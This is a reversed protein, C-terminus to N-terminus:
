TSVLCCGLVMHPVEKETKFQHHFHTTETGDPSNETRSQAVAPSQSCTQGIWASPGASGTQFAGTKFSKKTSDMSTHHQSAQTTNINHQTTNYQITYCWQNINDSQFGNKGQPKKFSILMYSKEVQTEIKRSLKTESTAHEYTIVHCLEALHRLVCLIDLAGGAVPDVLHVLKVAFCLTHSPLTMFM